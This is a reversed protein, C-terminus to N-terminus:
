HKGDGPVRLCAILKHEEDTCRNSIDCEEGRSGENRGSTSSVVDGQNRVKRSVDKSEIDKENDGEKGKSEESASGEGKQVNDAKRSSSQGSSNWRDKGNEVVFGKKSEDVQDESNKVEDFKTSNLVLRSRGTNENSDDTENWTLAIKPVLGAHASANVM